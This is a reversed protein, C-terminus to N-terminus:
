LIGRAVRYVQSGMQLGMRPLVMLLPLGWTWDAFELARLALLLLLPSLIRAYDYTEGWDGHHWGAVMLLGFLSIVFTVPNACSGRFARYIMPLTAVLGMLAVYDLAVRLPEIPGTQGAYWVPHVFRDFLGSFPISIVSHYAFPQTREQVYAYWAITPLAATAFVAARAFRRLYLLWGCYGAIFLLGTDRVLAASVLTLYLPLDLAEKDIYVVFGVCLAALAIDVVMRDISCIASPTLCFALGWIPRRKYRVAIRSLWFSGLFVFALIVARYACDILAQDGLVLVYALAPVLIRRYRLRPADISKWLDRRILPDHAIDHYFQGDWGTGSFLYINEAALAPPVGVTTSTWFLGSWNGGYNFHVTAAQWAVIILTTALAWGASRARGAKL